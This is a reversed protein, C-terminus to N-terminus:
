TRTALHFLAILVLGAIALALVIAHQGLTLLLLGIGVGLVAAVVFRFQSTV